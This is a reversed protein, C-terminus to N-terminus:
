FWARGLTPSPVPVSSIGLLSCNGTGNGWGAVGALLGQKWRPRCVLARAGARCQKPIFPSWPRKSFNNLFSCSVEGKNPLLQLPSGPRGGVPRGQGPFSTNLFGAQESHGGRRTNKGRPPTTGQGVRRRPESTRGRTRPEM